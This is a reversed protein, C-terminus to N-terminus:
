TIAFAFSEKCFLYPVRCTDARCPWVESLPSNHYVGGICSRCSLCVMSLSGGRTAPWCVALLLWARTHLWQKWNRPDMSICSAHHQSAADALPIYKSRDGAHPAHGFAAHGCSAHFSATHDCAAHHCAAHNNAARGFSTAM